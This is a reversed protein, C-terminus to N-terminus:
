PHADGRAGLHEVGFDRHELRLEIARAREGVGPESLCPELSRYAPLGTRESDKAIQLSYAFLARDGNPVALGVNPTLGGVVRGPRCQPDSGRRCRWAPM